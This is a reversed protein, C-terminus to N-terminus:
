PGAAVRALIADADGRSDHVQEIWWTAGAQEYAGRLDRQGPESYGMV